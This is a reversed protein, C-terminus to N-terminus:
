SDENCDGDLKKDPSSASQDEIVAIIIDESILFESPGVEQHMGLQEQKISKALVLGRFREKLKYSLARKVDEAHERGIQKEVRGMPGLVNVLLHGFRARAQAIVKAQNNDRSKHQDVRIKCLASPHSENFYRDSLFGNRRPDSEIADGVTWSRGHCSIINIKRKTSTKTVIESTQDDNVEFNGVASFNAVDSRSFSAGVKSLFGKKNRKEYRKTKDIKEEAEDFPISYSYGSGFDADCNETQIYVKCQRLKVEYGFVADAGGLIGIDCGLVAGVEFEQGPENSIPFIQIDALFIEHEKRPSEEDPRTFYGAM